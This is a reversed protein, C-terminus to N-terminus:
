AVVPAGVDVSTPLEKTLTLALPNRGREVTAASASYTKSDAPKLAKADDVVLLTRKVAVGPAVNVAEAADGRMMLESTMSEVVSATVTVPGPASERASVEPANSEVPTAALLVSSVPNAPMVVAVFLSYTTKTVLLWNM